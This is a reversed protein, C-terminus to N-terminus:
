KDQKPGASLRSLAPVMGMVQEYTRTRREAVAKLEAWLAPFAGVVEYFDSAGLLMIESDVAAVLDTAAPARALLGVEGAYEGPVILGLSVPVGNARQAHLELRGRVVIVLAHGTEGRRILMAGAAINRRQLRQLVAARSHPPVPALFAGAPSGSAPSQTAVAPRAGRFPMERPVTKDDDIIGARPIASVDMPLTVDDDGAGAGPARTAPRLTPDDDSDDLEPSLRAGVRAVPLTASTRVVLPTDLEISGEDDDSADGVDGIDGIDDANVDIMADDDEDLDDGDRQRSAAILSESIQRAANAIGSIDPYSDLERSLSHPLQSRLLRQQSAITPDAVHYPLPPPLPTVDASSRRASAASDRRAPPSGLPAQQRAVMTALLAQCSADDPAIELVSRCVTIAQQLRGQERYAIAVSRYLEVADGLRGAEHLVGALMVRLGLNDPEDRLRKELEKLKSM